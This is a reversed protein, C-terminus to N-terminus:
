APNHRHSGHLVHREDEFHPRNHAETVMTETSPERPHNTHMFLPSCPSNGGVEPNAYISLQPLAFLRANYPPRSIRRDSGHERSGTVMGRFAFTNLAIQQPQACLQEGPCRLLYLAHIHPLRPAQGPTFFRKNWFTSYFIQFHCCFFNYYRAESSFGYTSINQNTALCPFPPM